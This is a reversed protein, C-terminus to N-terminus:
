IWCCKVRQLFCESTALANLAKTRSDETQEEFSGLEQKGQPGKCYNIGRSGEEESMFM